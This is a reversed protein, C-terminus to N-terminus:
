LHSIVPFRIHFYMFYNSCVFCHVRDLYSQAEDTTAPGLSGEEESSGRGETCGEHPPYPINVTYKPVGFM